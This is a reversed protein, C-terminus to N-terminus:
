PEPEEPAPTPALVADVEILLFILEGFPEGLPTYAQWRSAYTGPEDPAIFLIHIQAEAGARAPFLAQEDEAGLPQGDLFRLRYRADWNCTGDNRVLWIKDIEAGPAFKTGDPVTLDEVFALSNTCPPTPTLALPTPSALPIQAPPQSLTPAIFYQPASAAQEGCASLLLAFVM